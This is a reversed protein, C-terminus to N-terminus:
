KLRIKWVGYNPIGAFLFRNAASDPSAALADVEMAPLGDNITIWASTGNNARVFVGTYYTATFLNAGSVTLLQIYLMTLDSFGNNIATWSVGNDNSVYVGHEITSGGNQAAIFLSNGIAAMDQVALLLWSTSM